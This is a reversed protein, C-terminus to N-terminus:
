LMEVAYSATIGHETQLHFDSSKVDYASSQQLNIDVNSHCSHNINSLKMCLEYVYLISVIINVALM